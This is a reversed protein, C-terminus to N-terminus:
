KYVPHFFFDTTRDSMSSSAKISFFDFDIGKRFFKMVYNFWNFIAVITIWFLLVKSEDCSADDNTRCQLMMSMSCFFKTEKTEPFMSIPRFCHVGFSLKSQFPLSNFKIVDSQIINRIVYCIHIRFWCFTETPNEVQWVEITHHWRVLIIM